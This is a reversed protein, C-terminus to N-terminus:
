PQAEGRLSATAAVLERLLHEAVQLPVRDITLAVGTGYHDVSAEVRQLGRVRPGGQEAGAAPAALYRWATGTGTEERDSIYGGCAAALCELAARRADTAREDDLKRAVAEAHAALYAPLLRRAIDRAHQEPPREDAVSISGGGPEGGGPHYGHPFTGSYVRRPSPHDLYLAPGGEGGLRLGEHCSHPHTFPLWADGTEDHLASALREAFTLRPDIRDPM